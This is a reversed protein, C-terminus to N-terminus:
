NLNNICVAFVSYVLAYILSVLISRSIRGQVPHAQHDHNGQHQHLQLGWLLDLFIM